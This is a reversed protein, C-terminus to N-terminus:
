EGVLQLAASAIVLDERAEVRLVAPRQGARSLIGDRTVARVPVPRIGIVALRRVIASRIPAANEGIGGTFVLADLQPLHTTAAAIGAAAREVFMDIALRARPDKPADALLRQMDGTGAVGALGAGHHLTDELDSATVLGRALLWLLIGPDISGARTAMMVGELPTFGM